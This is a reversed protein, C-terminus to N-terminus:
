GAAGAHRLGTLAVTFARTLAPGFDVRLEQYRPEALVIAVAAGPHAMPWAGATLAWLLGAAQFGQEPTGVAGTHYILRGLRELLMLANEKFERAVGVPINRELIAPGAALLECLRTRETLTEAIMAAVRRCRDEGEPFPDDALRTGLDDLWRTWDEVLITLFVAERTPFYSTVNSKALGVRASLQRLSVGAVPCQELLERAANLIQERRHQRQHPSRARQFQGQSM